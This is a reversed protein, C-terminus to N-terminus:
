EGNRKKYSALSARAMEPFVSVTTIDKGIEELVKVLEGCEAKVQQRIASAIAKSLACKHTQVPRVKPLRCPGWRHCIQIAVEEVTKTM